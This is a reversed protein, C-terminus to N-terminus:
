PAPVTEPNTSAVAELKVAAAELAAKVSDEEAQTMGTGITNALRRLDEAINDTATDIRGLIDQFEAVTAMINRVIDEIRHLDNIVHEEFNRRTGFFWLLPKPKPDHDRPM